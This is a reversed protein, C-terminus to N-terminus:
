LLSCGFVPTRTIAAHGSQILDVVALQGANDGDHGRSGTIGGSFLLQGSPAYLLCHGSGTVGFRQAEAGGDDEVIRIGPYSAAAMRLDGDKWSDPLGKAVTFVVYVSVKGQVQALIDKLEDFSARTCPCLPHAFLILTPRSGELAIASHAPFLTTEASPSVPTYEEKALVFAGLLILGLWVCGMVAILRPRILKGRSELTFSSVIGV